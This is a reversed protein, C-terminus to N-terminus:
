GIGVGVVNKPNIGDLEIERLLIEYIALATEKTKLDKKRFGAKKL